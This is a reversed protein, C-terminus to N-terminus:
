DVLMLCQEFALAMYRKVSRQSINLKLAIEAYTLGELQSYLFARRVSEQLGDLMADIQQLTELLILRDEVSLMFDEPLYSLAEMYARELSQRKYFNFLIRQAITTLYARPENIDVVHQKSQVSLLSIFTDQALDAAKQPCHLKKSLLNVLWSYNSAYLQSICSSSSTSRLVGQIPLINIQM